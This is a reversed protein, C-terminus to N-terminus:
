PKVELAARAADRCAKQVEDEPFSCGEEIRRLADELVKIRENAESALVYATDGRYPPNDFLERITFTKM